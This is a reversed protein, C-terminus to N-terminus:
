DYARCDPRIGGHSGVSTRLRIHTRQAVLEAVLARIAEHMCAAHARMYGRVCACACAHVHTRVVAGGTWYSEGNLESTYSENTAVKFTDVTRFNPPQALENWGGLFVVTDATALAGTSERAQSLTFVPSASFLGAAGSDDDDGDGGSDANANANADYVDVVDTYDSHPGGIGGATNTRASILVSCVRARVCCVSVSLLVGAFGRTLVAARM